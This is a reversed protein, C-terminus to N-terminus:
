VAMLQPRNSANATGIRRGNSKNPLLAGNGDIRTLALAAGLAFLLFSGALAILGATSNAIFWNGPGTLATAASAISVGLHGPRKSRWAVFGWVSFSLVAGAAVYSSEGWGERTWVFADIVWVFAALNRIARDPWSAEGAWRFSHVLLFVLGAQVGAHISWSRTFWAIMMGVAFGGILAAEAKSARLSRVIAYGAIAMGVHEGRTVRFIVNWDLPMGAFVAMTAILALERALVSRFGVAGLLLVNLLMLSTFVEARGIALLPALLAMFLTVNQLRLSPNVACDALRNRLTWAAAWAGPALYAIEFPRAAIHGLCWVHVGTGAAWLAYLFLPLWHREPNLGGYRTPRPLLNAGAILIPLALYWGILNPLHWNYYDVAIVARFVRPLAVNITLLVIGLAMARTPLNFAGYFRKIATFRVAVAVGGAITLAWGLRNDILDAQSILMFPVLLLGNELVVLLASDYRIRRRALVIATVVLLLEYTQLASFNFILKQTEGGLFNPDNYLRNIAFLLLAASCLFFPNCVLLRRIWYAWDTPPSADPIAPPDTQPM